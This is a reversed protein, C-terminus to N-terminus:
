ISDYAQRRLSLYSVFIMIISFVFLSIVDFYYREFTEYYYLAYLGDTIMSAPNIMNIIPVNKDIIYKMTIGMMGSLFSGLMTISIIVGTKLNENSKILSGVAVGLSLGALSGACALLGILLLHNGYDIKLVFITYVFLLLLGILQILYSAMMSGIIMTRKHVPSVSIRKGNNSMNALTQCISAMGLTGGYMCTMAILTYFEIMTYSLHHSSRDVISTQQQELMDIVEQYIHTYFAELNQIAMPNNELTENVKYESVDNVIKETQSIEEVVYKLVTQNIGNKAIVVQPQDDVLIVYGDIDKNNLLTKAQEETVYQIDFLQEESTDDGLQEFVNQYVENDFFADNNVLAIPIIDLQENKEIDSFAMQFFTGLLIPFAFTWFILMKNKFLTKLTYKFHHILM